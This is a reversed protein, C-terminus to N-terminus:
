RIGKTHCPSAVSVLTMVDRVLCEISKLLTFKVKEVLTVAVVLNRGTYCLEVKRLHVYIYIYPTQLTYGIRYLAGHFSKGSDNM